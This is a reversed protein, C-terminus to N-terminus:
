PTCTLRTGDITFGSRSTHLLYVQCTRPNSGGISLQPIYLEGTNPDFTPGIPPCESCLSADYSVSFPDNCSEPCLPTSCNASLTQIQAQSLATNDIQLNSLTGHWRYRHEGKLYDFDGGLRLVKDTANPHSIAKNGDAEGNVFIQAQGAQYVVAVHFWTNPTVTKYSSMVRDQDSTSTRFKVAGINGESSEGNLAFIWGNESGRKALIASSYGINPQTWYVCASMTFDTNTLNLADSDQYTTVTIPDGTFPGPQNFITGAQVAQTGLFIGIALSSCVLGDKLFSPRLGRLPYSYHNTLRQQKM